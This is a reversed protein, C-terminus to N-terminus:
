RSGASAGATLPTEGQGRPKGDTRRGQLVGDGDVARVLTWGPQAREKGFAGLFLGNGDEVVGPRPAM